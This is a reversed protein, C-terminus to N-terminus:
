DHVAGFTPARQPASLRTNNDNNNSNKSGDAATETKKQKPKPNKTRFYLRQKLWPKRTVAAM